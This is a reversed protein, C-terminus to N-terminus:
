IFSAIKLLYLTIYTVLLADISGLAVQVASHAKTKIRAIGVLVVLLYLMMWPTGFFFVMFTVPGSIGAAHVSVKTKFSLIAISLTVTFYCGIFAMALNYKLIYCILAGIFYSLIAYIFFKPRMNKNSVYIDTEGKKTAYLIPAIPLILLFITGHFLLFFNGFLGESYQSICLLLYLHLYTAFLPASFLLSIIEYIKIKQM